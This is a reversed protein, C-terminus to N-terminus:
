KMYKQLFRIGEDMMNVTLFHGLKPYLVISAQAGEQQLREICEKQPLPSVSDDVAGNLALIPIEKLIERHRFPDRQKIKETIERAAESDPINWDRRMIRDSQEWWGSGNFAAAAQIDLGSAAIGMATIGGMSHGVIGIPKTDLSRIYQFLMRSEEVNQFITEWFVPYAEEAEYDDLVGRQGHHIADPLLVRYGYSAFIRGRLRQLEKCSTWGHYFIITGQIPIEEYELILIPIDGIIQQHETIM